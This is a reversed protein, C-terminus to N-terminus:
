PTGKIVLMRIENDHGYYIGRAQALVWDASFSNTVVVDNAKVTTGSIQVLANSTTYLDSSSPYMPKRTTASVVVREGDVESEFFFDNNTALIRTPPNTDPHSYVEVRNRGHGRFFKTIEAGGAVPVKIGVVVSSPTDTYIIHPGECVVPVEKATVWNWRWGFTNFKKLLKIRREPKSEILILGKGSSLPMIELSEAELCFAPRPRMRIGKSPRMWYFKHMVKGKEVERQYILIKDYFSYFKGHTEREDNSCVFTNNLYLKGNFLSLVGMMHVSREADNIGVPAHDIVITDGTEAHGLAKLFPMEKSVLWLTAM